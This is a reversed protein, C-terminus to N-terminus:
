VIELNELAGTRTCILGGEKIMKVRVLDVRKTPVRKKEEKEHVYDLTM